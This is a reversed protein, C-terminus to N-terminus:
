QFMSGIDNAIFMPQNLWEQEEDWAKKAEAKPDYRFEDTQYYEWTEGEDLPYSDVIHYRRNMLRGEWRTTAFEHAINYSPFYYKREPHEFDIFKVVASRSLGGKPIVIDEGLCVGTKDWRDVIKLKKGCYPCILKDLKNWGDDISVYLECVPCKLKVGQNM